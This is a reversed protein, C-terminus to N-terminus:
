EDKDLEEKIDEWPILKEEGSDIRELLKKLEDHERLVKEETFGHFTIEWLIHAAMCDNKIKTENRIEADVLEVWPTLEMAYTEEDEPCYLCVDIFAATEEDVDGEDRKVYIQYETNPSPDYSLITNVVNRYAISMKTVEDDPDKHYYEKHLCNFIAHYSTKRLLDRLTM